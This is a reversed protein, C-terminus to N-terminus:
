RKKNKKKIKKSEKPKHVLITILNPLLFCFAFLSASKFAYDALHLPITVYLVFFNLFSGIIVILWISTHHKKEFTGLHIVYHDILLGFVLGLIAVFYYSYGKLAIIVPILVLAVAATLFVLAFLLVYATTDRLLNSDHSM